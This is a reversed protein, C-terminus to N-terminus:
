NRITEAVPTNIMNHWEDEPLRDSQCEVYFGGVDFVNQFRAKVGRRIGKHFLPDHGGSQDSVARFDLSVRTKGTDNPFTMHRCKNGYFRVYEGPSMDFPHFDGLDPVSEAWLSNTSFVPCLPLWFNLESPQHHYDCDNHCKGMAVTSPNYIRLTPSRQYLIRGGGLLPGIIEKVFHHYVNDLREYSATVNTKYLESDRCRNSNWVAQLRNMKNGSGDTYQEAGGPVTHLDGLSSPLPSGAEIELIERACEVFPYKQTDYQFINERHLWSLSSSTISKINLHSSSQLSISLCRRPLNIMIIVATIIAIVSAHGSNTLWRVM